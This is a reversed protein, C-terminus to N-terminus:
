RPARHRASMPLVVAVFGVCGLVATSWVSARAYGQPGSSAGITNLVAVGISTGVMQCTSFFASAIGSEQAGVDATATSMATPGILAAGCGVIAEAPLILGWYSSSPTIRSLLLIGVALLAFGCGLTVSLGRRRLLRHTYQIAVAADVALLPIFALGTMLASFGLVQQFQYSLLFFMGLLGFGAGAESVYASLRHRDRLMALPLLPQSKGWQRVVFAALLAMSVAFAGMVQESWWNGSAGTALAWVLAVLGGISLAASRLDLRVSRDVPERPLQRWAVVVAVIAIPTSVCVWWRWSAFEILAGGVVLGFGGGSTVIAGFLGFARARDRPDTFARALVSLNAPTLVAAFVGEAARGAILVGVERATGVVLISAAFGLAGAVIVTRRGFRDVLRGGLLILGALALTYASIVWQRSLDSVQLDRQVSPMAVSIMTTDAILVLQVAGAVGLLAWASRGTRM